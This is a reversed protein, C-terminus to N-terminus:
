YCGPTPICSLHGLLLSNLPKWYIHAITNNDGGDDSKKQRSLTVCLSEVAEPYLPKMLLHGHQRQGGQLWCPGKSAKWTCVFHVCLVSSLYNMLSCLGLQLLWLLPALALLILLHGNNTNVKTACLLKSTFACFQLALSLLDSVTAFPRPLSLSCSLEECPQQFM